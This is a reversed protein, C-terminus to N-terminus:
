HSTCGFVEKFHENHQTVFNVRERGPPQRSEIVELMRLDNSDSCYHQAWHLYYLQAPSMELLPLVLEEPDQPDEVSIRRRRAPEMLLNRNLYAQWALDTAKMDAWIENATLDTMNYNATLNNQNKYSRPGNYTANFKQLLPQIDRLVETGSPNFAIGSTDYGHWMLHSIQHGISAYHIYKPVDRIEEFPEQTAYPIMIRNLVYNYVGFPDYPRAFVRWMDTTGKEYTNRMLTSRHTLLLLSNHLFDGSLSVGEMSKTAVEGDVKNLKVVNDMMDRLKDQFGEATSLKGLVRLGEQKISEAIEDIQADRAEVSLAVAQLYLYSATDEMLAIATNLCYEPDGVSVGVPDVFDTYVMEAWLLVLINYLEAPSLGYYDGLLETISNLSTEEYVLIKYGETQSKDTELFTSLVTKWDIVMDDLEYVFKVDDFDRNALKMILHPVHPQKESLETLFTKTNSLTQALLEESKKPTLHNMLGLQVVAEKMRVLRAELGKGTKVCKMFSNYEEAVNYSTSGLSLLNSHHEELCVKRSPDDSFPSGPATPHLSMMFAEPKDADVDLEINFFPTFGNKMMNGLAESLDFTFDLGTLEVDTFQYAGFMDKIPKAWDQRADQSGLNLCSDYFAKMKGGGTSTDSSNLGNLQGKIMKRAMTGPQRPKHDPKNMVGGCAYQYFDECAKAKGTSDMMM